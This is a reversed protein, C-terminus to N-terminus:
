RSDVTRYEVGLVVAKGSPTLAALAQGQFEDLIAVRPTKDFVAQQTGPVLKICGKCIYGDKLQEM